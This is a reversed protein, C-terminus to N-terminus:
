FKVDSEDDRRGGRWRRSAQEVAHRHRNRVARGLWSPRTMALFHSLSSNDHVRRVPQNGRLRACDVAAACRQEDATRPPPPGFLPPPPRASEVLRLLAGGRRKKTARQDEDEAVVLATEKSYEIKQVPAKDFLDLPRQLMEGNQLRQKAQEVLDRDLEELDGDDTFYSGTKYTNRRSDRRLQECTLGGGRHAALVRRRLDSLVKRAEDARQITLPADTSFSLFEGDDGLGQDDKDRLVNKDNVYLPRDCLELSAEDGRRAKSPHRRMENLAHLAEALKAWGLARSTDLGAVALAARFVRPVASERSSRPALSAFRAAADANRLRLAEAYDVNEVIAIHARAGSAREVLVCGVRAGSLLM